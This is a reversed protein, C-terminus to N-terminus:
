KIRRVMPLENQALFSLAALRQSNPEGRALKDPDKNRTNRKQPFPNYKLDDIKM